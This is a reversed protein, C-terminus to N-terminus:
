KGYFPRLLESGAEAGRRCTAKKQKIVSCLLPLAACEAAVTAARCEM